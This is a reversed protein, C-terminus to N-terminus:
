LGFLILTEDGSGGGVGLQIDTGAENTFWLTNPSDNKVWVQGFGSVDALADAREPLQLVGFNVLTDIISPKERILSWLTPALQDSVNGTNTVTPATTGLSLALALEALTPTSGDPLRLNRGIIAGVTADSEVRIAKGVTGAIPVKVIAM